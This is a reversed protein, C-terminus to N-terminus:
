RSFVELNTQRKQFVINKEPGVGRNRFDLLARFIEGIEKEEKEEGSKSLVATMLSLPSPIGRGGDEVRGEREM